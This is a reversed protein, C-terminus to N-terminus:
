GVLYAVVFKGMVSGLRSRMNLDFSGTAPKCFMDFSEWQIEDVSRGDSPAIHLVQALLQSSSSVDADTVTFTKDTISVMNGFDIETQKINTSGAGPAAWSQDGRLFTTSDATGSGLEATPVKGASLAAVTADHLSDGHSTPTRANTNRPDDDTVYENLVGPVGSTGLLAAKEGVSPINIFTPDVATVYRNLDGPTGSSGALAAKQGATPDNANSHTPNNLALKSEVIAAGPDVHANLIFFDTGLVKEASLTADAATTVFEAGSPAGAAAPPNYLPM